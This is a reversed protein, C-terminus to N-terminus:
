QSEQENEPPGAALPDRKTFIRESFRTDFAEAVPRSVKLIGNRAFREAIAQEHQIIAEDIPAAVRKNRAVVERAIEIPLGTERSLVKAYIEPNAQVWALARAERKLFDEILAQKPEIASEHAIEFSASLGYNSGDAIIRAGETIALTTYPAWTAWADISGRDFAAKADGPPLFVTVVDDAGLKEDELAQLVLYHGVSGRTTAIRRGALDRLSNIPSGNRVIIALGGPLRADMVQVGVAKIPSGSQYAFIFPADGALGLDVAGSGLAELLHQAAPFESWEVRYSADDLVGAAIMMSKTSGRQNAVRLLDGSEGGRLLFFAGAAVVLAVAIAAAIWGKM